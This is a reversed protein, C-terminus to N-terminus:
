WFHRLFIVVTSTRNLVPPKGSHTGLDWGLVEGFQVRAGNEATVEMRSVRELAEKSPVDDSVIEDVGLSLSNDSARTSLPPGVFSTHMQLVPSMPPSALCTSVYLDEDPQPMSIGASRSTTAAKVPLSERNELRAIGDGVPGPAASAASGKRSRKRLISGDRGRMPPMEPEHESVSQTERRAGGGGDRDESGKRGRWFAPIGRRFAEISRSRPKSTSTSPTPSLVRSPLPTSSTMHSMPLSTSHLTETARPMTSPSIFNGDYSRPLSTESHGNRMSIRFPFSTPPKSQLVSQHSPSSPTSVSSAGLRSSTRSQSTGKATSQPLPLRESQTHSSKPRRKNPTSQSAQPQARSKFLPPMSISSSISQRSLRSSSRPSSTFPIPIPPPSPSRGSYLPM